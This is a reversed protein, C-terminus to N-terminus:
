FSFYDVNKSFTYRIMSKCLLCTLNDTKFIKTNADIGNLWGTRKSIRPVEQIQETVGTVAHLPDNFNHYTIHIPM